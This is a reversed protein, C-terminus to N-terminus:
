TVDKLCRPFDLVLQFITLMQFQLWIAAKLSQNLNYRQFSQLESKYTNTSKRRMLLLNIRGAIRYRNMQEKANVNPASTDKWHISRTKMDRCKYSRKLRRRASTLHAFLNEFGLINRGVSIGKLMKLNFLIDAVVIWSLVFTARRHKWM